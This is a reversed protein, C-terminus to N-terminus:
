HITGMGRVVGSPHLNQKRVPTSMRLSTVLMSAVPCKDQIWRFLVNRRTGGGSAPQDFVPGMPGAPAALRTFLVSLEPHGPVVYGNRPEALARLFDTTPQEFWWALSHTVGTADALITGEHGLAGRQAVRLSDVLDAMERAPSPEPPSPPPQPHGLSDTYEEWLAIEADTFVRYMPGTQFDLLQRMRSNRWDGPTLYGHEVMADLFGPPNEFWQDLRTPGLMYRQHNRSGFKAKDSILAIMRDRLTPRNRLHKKFDEFFTGVSGFAVYGNWIRRWAQQAAGEGGAERIQGLYLRVAEAARQGHGNVANDIGIHMVYFHPNIGFFEMIDRTPKLELVCWELQLTMGIIEPIYEETFQSIALEFAPVQFASDLFTPDFAFEQSNIPPPAYGVSRCLDRYINCHHMSVDGDGLEDMWVSFLLARVEDQPGARGIYRLWAGDLLNFPALQKIREVADARSRVTNGPDGPDSKDANEALDNYILDLRDAFAQDSYEFFRIDQEAKDPDNSLREAQDLWYDVFARAPRLVGPYSSINLLRHYLMRPDLESAALRPDSVQELYTANNPFPVVPTRGTDRLQGRTELFWDQPLTANPPMRVAPDDIRTAQLVVGVRHWNDLIDVREQYRGWREAEPSDTGYGRVSWRQAGIVPKFAPPQGPNTPQTVWHVDSALNVAVPRQAPWSWFVKRNGKPNPYPPHTACSNYDTHWPVAMFKGLDGPELGDEERHRPVYGITLLPRDRRLGGSYDLRKGKIRFPGTGGTQWPQVYITPERVVFTVDIGPSFRGGLCNVLVAKDLYEGPGLPTGSGPRFADRGENWRRLFFYQTKRLSLFPEYGDGLALPMMTTNTHQPSEPDDLEFPNRFIPVIGALESHHPDDAASIDALKAHASAGHPSLNVVWRQQSASRFIPAIQDDFTPKYQNSYANLNRDFIDPALDLKRVWSDYIDDWASVSNLIQPAFSPDATTVWAGAAEVQTGDDFVITASVPGDSTDDFWQNNNVDDAVAIQGDIRWGVARGYGGLVLLRGSGDAKLEGLTDIPGSLMEMDAFAPFAVPYDPLIVPRQQAPDYACPTTVRDFAVTTNTRGSIARPGPDITLRAVRAPDDLIAIRRDVPPQEPEDATTLRVNRIQPLAGNSYSDIGQIPGEETLVFWNAKKNAVHVTWIIDTVTKGDVRDGIKVEVGGGRPWSEVALNEYAFIRFRAAHRKLAGERDRLDSSTVLDHETGPRIPLGGIVDPAHPDPHGAMTEPAIVYESSNGVRAVGLAPHVRFITM